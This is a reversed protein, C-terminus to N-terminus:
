GDADVRVQDADIQSKIPQILHVMLTPLKVVRPDAPHSRDSAFICVNDPLPKRRTIASRITSLRCKTKALISSGWIDGATEAIYTRAM